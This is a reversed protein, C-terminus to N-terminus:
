FSFCLMILIQKDVKNYSFNPKFSLRKQIKKRKQSCIYPSVIMDYLWTGFFIGMNSFFFAKSGKDDDAPGFSYAMGTINIISIGFLILGTKWSEAYFHGSGHIISGPILAIFFAAGPSYRWWKANQLNGIEKISTDQRYSLTSSVNIVRYFSSFDNFLLLSDIGINNKAYLSNLFFILSIFINATIFLYKNIVKM